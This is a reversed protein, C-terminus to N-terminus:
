IAVLFHVSDVQSVVYSEDHSVSAESYLGPNGDRRNLVNYNFRRLKARSWVISNHLRDNESRAMNYAWRDSFTSECRARRTGAPKRDHPKQRSVNFLASTGCAGILSLFGHSPPLCGDKKLCRRNCRSVCVLKWVISQGVRKSRLRWMLKVNDFLRKALLDRSLELAISLRLKCCYGKTAKLLRGRRFVLIKKGFIAIM